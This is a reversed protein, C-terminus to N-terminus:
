KRVPSKPAKTRILFVTVFSSGAALLWFFFFGIAYGTSRGIDLVPFTAEALAAPDILAFFIMTAAAAALFSPWLIAAIDQARRSWDPHPELGDDTPQDAAM